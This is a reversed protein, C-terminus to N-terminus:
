QEVILDVNIGQGDPTQGSLRFPGGLYSPVGPAISVTGQWATPTSTSLPTVIVIENHEELSWTVPDTTDIEVKSGAKMDVKYWGVGYADIGRKLQPQVVDDLKIVASVLPIITFAYPISSPSLTYARSCDNTRCLRLTFTGNYVGADRNTNIQLSTSFSGDAQQKIDPTRSIFDLSDFIRKSVVDSPIRSLKASAALEAIPAGQRFTEAIVPPDFTVVIVEDTQGGSSASAAPSGVSGPGSPGTASAGGDTSIGAENGGGGCGSVPPASALTFALLVARATTFTASRVATM